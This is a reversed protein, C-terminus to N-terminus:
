TVDENSAYLMRAAIHTVEDMHEKTQDMCGPLHGLEHILTGTFSIYDCAQRRAISILGSGFNCIGNLDPMLFDVIQLQWPHTIALRALKEAKNVIFQERESLEDRFYIKTIAHAKEAKVDALQLVTDGLFGKVAAGVAISKQGLTAAMTQEGPTSVPIANEGYMDKWFKGLKNRFNSWGTTYTPYYRLSDHEICRDDNLFGFIEDCSIKDNLCLDSIVYSISTKLSYNDAMKRDRDLRIDFLNYGYKSPQPLDSVWLGKCFLANKYQEELLIEGDNEAIFKKQLGFSLIREQMKLWDTLNINPLEITLYGDPKRPRVNVRIIETDYKESNHISPYWSEDGTHIACGWERGEAKAIRCIAMMALKAGEGKEGRYNGGVKSTEGFILHKPLLVAGKNRILVSGNSGRQIDFPFGDDEGDLANQIFERCVEWLKWDPVYGPGVTLDFFKSTEIVM